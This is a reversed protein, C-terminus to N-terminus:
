LLLMEEASFTEIAGKHRVCEPKAIVGYVVAYQKRIDPLDTLSEAEEFYVAHAAGDMTEAEVDKIRKTKTYRITVQGAQEHRKQHYERLKAEEKASLRFRRYFVRYTNM